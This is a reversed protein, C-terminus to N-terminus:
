YDPELTVPDEGAKAIWSELYRVYSRDAYLDFYDDEIAVILLSVLAFNTRVCHGRKFKDPHLDIGCGMSLIRRIARGKIAFCSYGSSIDTAAHLQGDLKKAILRIVKDASKSDSTFLWQEPGIWCIAPDADRWQLAQPLNLAESAADAGDPRVRLRVISRGSVRQLDYGPHEPM